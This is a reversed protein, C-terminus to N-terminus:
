KKGVNEKAGKNRGRKKATVPLKEIECRDESFTKISTGLSPLRCLFKDWSAQWLQITQRGGIKNLSSHSPSYGRSPDEERENVGM